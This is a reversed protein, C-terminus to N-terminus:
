VGVGIWHQILGFTLCGLVAAYFIDFRGYSLIHLIWIWLVIPYGILAFYNGESVQEKTVEYLAKSDGISPFSNFAISGGLWLFPYIFISKIDFLVFAIGFVVVSLLTGVIIPAVCIFCNKIFSKTPAYLVYGVSEEDFQFYCVEYVEVGTIYCFLEHSFEHVIVGPFTLCAILQGPIRIYM